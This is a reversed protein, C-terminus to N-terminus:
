SNEGNEDAKIKRLKKGANSMAERHKKAGFWHDYMWAAVGVLIAGLEILAITAAHSELWLWLSEM